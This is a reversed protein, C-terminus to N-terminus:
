EYNPHLAASFQLVAAINVRVAVSMVGTIVFEGRIVFRHRFNTLLGCSPDSSDDWDLRTCSLSPGLGSRSRLGGTGVCSIGPNHGGVIFKLRARYLWFQYCFIELGQWHELSNTSKAIWLILNVRWIIDQSILKNWCHPSVCVNPVDADCGATLESHKTQSSSTINMRRQLRWIPFLISIQSCSGASILGASVSSPLTSCHGPGAHRGEEPCHLIDLSSSQSVPRGWTVQCCSVAINVNNVPRSGRQQSFDNRLLFIEWIEKLREMGQPPVKPPCILYCRICFIYSIKDPAQQIALGPSNSFECLVFEDHLFTFINITGVIRVHQDLADSQGPFM